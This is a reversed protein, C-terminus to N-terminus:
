ITVNCLTCTCTCMSVEGTSSTVAERTVNTSSATPTAIHGDSLPVTGANSTTSTTPDTAATPPASNSHSM